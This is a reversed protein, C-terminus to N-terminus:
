EKLATLKVLEEGKLRRYIPPYHMRLGSVADRVQIRACATSANEQAITRVEGTQVNQCTVLSM